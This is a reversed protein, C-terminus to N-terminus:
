GSYSAYNQIARLKEEPSPFRITREISFLINIKATSDFPIINDDDDKISFSINGFDELIDQKYLDDVAEWRVTAGLNYDIIPIELLVDSQILVNNRKVWFRKAVNSCLRLTDYPILDMALEGTIGTARSVYAIDYFDNSFGLLAKADYVGHKFTLKTSATTGGYAGTFRIRLNVANQVDVAWGMSTTPTGIYRAQAELLTQLTSAITFISYYGDPIIITIESNAIMTSAVKIKNNSLTESVNFFKLDMIVSLPTLSVSTNKGYSHINTFSPNNMLINFNSPTSGTEGDENNFSFFYKTTKELQYNDFKSSM